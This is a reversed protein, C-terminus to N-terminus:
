ATINLVHTVYDGGWHDVVEQIVVKGVALECTEWAQADLPLAHLALSQAFCVV